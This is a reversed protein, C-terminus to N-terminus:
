GCQIFFPLVCPIDRKTRRQFKLGSLDNLPLPFVEWGFQLQDGFIVGDLIGKRDLLSAGFNVRGMNEVLLDVTLGDAPIEFSAYEDGSERDLTAHFQGNLFIQARDRIQRVQFISEPRPGSIQTRYLIFGYDQDYSEMPHPVM